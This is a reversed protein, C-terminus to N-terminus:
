DEEVPDLSFSRSAYAEAGHQSQSLVYRSEYQELNGISEIKLMKLFGEFDIEDADAFACISFRLLCRSQVCEEAASVGCVKDTGYGKRGLARGPAYCHKRCVILVFEDFSRACCGDWPRESTTRLLEM